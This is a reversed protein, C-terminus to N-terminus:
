LSCRQRGFWAFGMFINWERSPRMADEGILRLGTPSNYSSSIIQLVQEWLLWESLLGLPSSGSEEARSGLPRDTFNSSLEITRDMTGDRWRVSGSWTHLDHSLVILKRWSRMEKRMEPAPEPRTGIYRVSIAGTLMLPAMPTSCWSARVQPIRTEWSSPSLCSRPWDPTLTSPGGTNCHWLFSAIAVTTKKM